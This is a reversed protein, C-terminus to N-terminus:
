LHFYVVVFYELAGCSLGMQTLRQKMSTHSNILQNLSFLYIILYIFVNWVSPCIVSLLLLFVYFCLYVYLLFYVTIFIVSSISWNRSSCLMGLSVCPFVSLRFLGIDILSIKDIILLRGFLFVM